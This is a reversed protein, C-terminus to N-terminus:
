RCRCATSRQAACARRACATPALPMPARRTPTPRGSHGGARGVARTPAHTRALAQEVLEPSSTRGAALDAGLQAVTWMPSFIAHAIEERLEKEAAAAEDAAARRPLKQALGAAFLQRTKSVLK